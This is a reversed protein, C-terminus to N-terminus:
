KTLLKIVFDFVGFNGLLIVILVGSLLFNSMRGRIDRLQPQLQHIEDRLQLSTDALVKGNIELHRVIREIASISEQSRSATAEQALVIKSLPEIIQNMANSVRAFEASAKQLSEVARQNTEVGRDLRTVLDDMKLTVGSMETKVQDLTNGLGTEGDILIKIMKGMEAIALNMAQNDSTADSVIMTLGSTTAALSQAIRDLTDVSQKSNEGTEEFVGAWCSQQDIVSDVRTLMEEMVKQLHDYASGVKAVAGNINYASSQLASSFSKLGNIELIRQKNYSEMSKLEFAILNLVEETSDQFHGLSTNVREGIGTDSQQFRVKAFYKDIEWFLQDMEIRLRYSRTVAKESRIDQFYHVFLTLIVVIVLLLFDILAVQSFTPMFGSSMGGFQQEWLQLFNYDTLEPHTSIYLNFNHTAASLAIWTLTIPLLVLINRTMEFWNIYAPRREHYVAAAAQLSAPDFLAQFDIFALENECGNALDSAFKKMRQSTGPEFPLIQNALDNINKQLTEVLIDM